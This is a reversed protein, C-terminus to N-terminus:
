HNALETFPQSFKKFNFFGKYVMTLHGFAKKCRTDITPDNEM